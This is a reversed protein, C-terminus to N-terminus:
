PAKGVVTNKKSTRRGYGLRKMVEMRQDHTYKTWMRIEEVTRGCGECMNTNIDVRCISRCPTIYM